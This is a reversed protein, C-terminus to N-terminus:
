ECVQVTEESEECELKKAIIYNCVKVNNLIRERHSEIYDIVEDNVGNVRLTDTNSSSLCLDKLDSIAAIRTKNTTQFDSSLVTWEQARFYRTEVIGAAQAVCQFIKNKRQPSTQSIASTTIFMLIVFCLRKM